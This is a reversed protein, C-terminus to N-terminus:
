VYAETNFYVSQSTSCGGNPTGSTAAGEEERASAPYAFGNEIIRQIYAVIEPMYETVRTLLHPKVQVM